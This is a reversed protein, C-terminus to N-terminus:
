IQLNQRTKNESHFLFQSGPSLEATLIVQKELPGANGAGVQHSVVRQLELELLDPARKQRECPGPM